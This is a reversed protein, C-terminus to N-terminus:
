AVAEGAPSRYALGDGNTVAAGRTRYSSEDPLTLYHFPAPRVPTLPTGVLFSSRQHLQDSTMPRTPHWHAPRPVLRPPHRGRRAGPVPGHARGAHLGS